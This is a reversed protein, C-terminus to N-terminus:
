EDAVGESRPDLELAVRRHVTGGRDLRAVLPGAGRLESAPLTADWEDGAALRFRWVRLTSTGRRLSLQYGTERGERNSVGVIVPPGNPPFGPAGQPVLWLASFHSANLQRNAGATAIAIAVASIAIAAVMALLGAPPLHPLRGRSIPRSPRRARERRAVLAAGITLTALSAAFVGRSLDVFLQLVTGSLATACISLAVVLVIRLDRDITGPPFLAAALAYGPLVLVLPLLVAAALWSM